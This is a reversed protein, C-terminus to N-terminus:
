FPCDDQAYPTSATYDYDDPPYSLEEEERNKTYDDSYAERAEFFTKGQGKGYACEVTWGDEFTYTVIIEGDVLLGFGNHYQTAFEASNGPLEALQASMAKKQCELLEISTIM